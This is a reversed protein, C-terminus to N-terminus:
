FYHEEGNVIVKKIYHDFILVQSDEPELNVQLNEYTFDEMEDDSWDIIQTMEVTYKVEVKAM